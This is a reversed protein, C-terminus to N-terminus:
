EAEVSTRHDLDKGKSKVCISCWNRYPLHTLDHEEIETQTPKRPDLMHKIIRKDLPREKREADMGQKGEVQEEVFEEDDVDNVEFDSGCTGCEFEEEAVQPRVSDM